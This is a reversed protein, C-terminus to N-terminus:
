LKAKRFQPKRVRTRLTRPQYKMAKQREWPVEDVAKQLKNCSTECSLKPNGARTAVGSRIPVLALWSIASSM